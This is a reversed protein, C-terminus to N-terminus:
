PNPLDFNHQHQLKRISITKFGYFILLVLAVLVMIVGMILVYFSSKSGNGSTANILGSVVLLAASSYLLAISKTLRGLQRIKIESIKHQFPTCKESLLQRIETSLGMMQSATSMILLGVAPLITIPLYWEM